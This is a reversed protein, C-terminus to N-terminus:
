HVGGPWVADAITHQRGADTAPRLLLLDMGFGGPRHAAFRWQNQAICDLGCGEVLKVLGDRRYKRTINLRITDRRSFTVVTRDPLMIKIPGGTENSYVAKVLLAREGEVHGTFSVAGMDLTLDTYHLLPNTVFERFAQTGAYEEAAEVALDESLEDTTAVELLLRDQARLLGALGTLVDTDDSFNAMTNGLLSFLIPAEGLLDHLVRRLEALNDVDSFDLLVALIRDASRTSHHVVQRVALRIMDESMDVPLYWLAHGDAQLDHLMLDDKEGTGTGLAVYHHPTRALAERVEGWRSRFTDIGARMVPYYLDRSAKHWAAASEPGMYSLATFIRKGDATRSAPRQMDRTLRALQTASDGIALYLYPRGGGRGTQLVALVSELCDVPPM